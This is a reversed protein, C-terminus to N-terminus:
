QVFIQIKKKNCVSAEGVAALLQHCRTIAKMVPLKLTRLSNLNLYNLVLILLYNVIDKFIFTIATVIRSGDMRWHFGCWKSSVVEKGRQKRKNKAWYKRLARQSAPDLEHSLKIKGQLKKKQYKLREKMQLKLKSEPNKMQNQRWKRQREANTKM